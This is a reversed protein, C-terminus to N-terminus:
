LSELVKLINKVPMRKTYDKNFYGDVIKGDTDIIYTAPVPLARDSNKSSKHLNIGRLRHFFHSIGSVYWTVEYDDMIKHGVDYIISFDAKSKEVTEDIFRNSEPTVAIVKAGLDTIMSISDSLDHMYLNCYQCWEGRYFIIVVPSKELIESLHITRDYNDKAKFNPAKSGFELMKQADISFSTILMISLIIGTKISIKKVIKRM